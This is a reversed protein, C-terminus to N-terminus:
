SPGNEAGNKEASPFQTPNKVLAPSRAAILFTATVPPGATVIPVISFGDTACPAAQPSSPEIM